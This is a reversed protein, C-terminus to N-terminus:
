PRLQSTTPSAWQWGRMFSGKLGCSALVCSDSWSYSVLCVPGGSNGKARTGDVHHFHPRGHIFLIGDAQDWVHDVFMKTETRAFICAIGNGHAALKALCKGTERGYPPNMWVRGHWPRTLGDNHKIGFCSQPQNTWMEKATRWPMTPPCFPDLDFPGLAQVIEPPTLWEVTAGANPKTHSGIGAM